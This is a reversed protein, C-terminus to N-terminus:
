RKPIDAPIKSMLEWPPRFFEWIDQALLEPDEHEAFHGGRSMATWHRVNFFREWGTGSIEESWRTGALRKHLDHLIEDSITVIFTEPTM